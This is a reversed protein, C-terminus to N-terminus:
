SPKEHSRTGAWPSRAKPQKPPGVFSLQARLTVYALVSARRPSVRGKAVLVLLRALFQNIDVASNFESLEPLLESSLNLPGGLRSRM